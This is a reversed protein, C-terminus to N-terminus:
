PHIIKDLGGKFFLFLLLMGLLSLIVIILTMISQKHGEGRKNM